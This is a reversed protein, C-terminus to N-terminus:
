IQALFSFIVMIQFILPINRYCGLYHHTKIASTEIYLNYTRTLIIYLKHWFKDPQRHFIYDANLVEVEDVIWDNGGDKGIQTHRQTM